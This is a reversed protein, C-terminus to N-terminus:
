NTVDRWVAHPTTIYDASTETYDVLGGSYFLNFPTTLGTVLSIGGSGGALVEVVAGAPPLSSPTDCGRAGNMTFYVTGASVIVSSLNNIGSSITVPASSGTRIQYKM